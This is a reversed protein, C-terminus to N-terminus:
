VYFIRELKSKSYIYSDVTGIVGNAKEIADELGKRSPAGIWSRGSQASPTYRLQPRNTHKTDTYLYQSDPIGTRLKGTDTNGVNGDLKQM